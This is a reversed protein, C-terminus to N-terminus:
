VWVDSLKNLAEKMVKLLAEISIEISFVRGIEDSPQHRNDCYKFLVTSRSDYELFYCIAACTTSDYNFVQFMTTPENELRNFIEDPQLGDCDLRM